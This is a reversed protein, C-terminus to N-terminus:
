CLRKVAVNVLESFLRQHRAKSPLYEPHWQVGIAFSKASLEVAQVIGNGDRASITIGDGLTNVAQNHLSNVRLENSSVIRELLSGKTIFVNKVPRISQVKPRETYLDETDQHLSGGLVVNLMQGGRCIGLVPLNNDLAKKILTMEMRDRELDRKAQRLKLSFLLRLIFIFFALFYGAINKSESEENFKILEEGYHDPSIDSGGGVILGDIHMTSDFNNTRVRVPKGGARRVALSTMVWAMFGGKVPGTVAIVPKNKKM